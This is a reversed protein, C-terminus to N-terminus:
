RDTRTGDQGTVVVFDLDGVAVGAYFAAGARTVARGLGDGDLCADAAGGGEDVGGQSAGGRCTTTRILVIVYVDSDNECDILDLSNTAMCVKGM